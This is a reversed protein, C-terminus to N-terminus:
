SRKRTKEGSPSVAESRIRSLTEPAIGLWSALHYLPVRRLLHSRECELAEYRERPSQGRAVREAEMKRLLEATSARGWLDRWCDHSAMLLDLADREFRCLVTEELAEISLAAPTRTVYAEFAGTFGGEHDFGLTIERRANHHFYRVLGREIAALWEQREGQRVLITGRRVTVIRIVRDFRSWEEDPIAALSGIIRRVLPIDHPM